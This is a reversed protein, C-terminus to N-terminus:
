FETHSHRAREEQRNSNSVNGERWWWNQRLVEFRILIKFATIIRACLNLARSVQWSHPCHSKLLKNVLSSTLRLQKYHNTVDLFYTVSILINLRRFAKLLLFFFLQTKSSIINTQQKRCRTTLIQELSESSIEPEMELTVSGPKRSHELLPLM